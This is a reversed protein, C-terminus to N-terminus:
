SKKSQKKKSPIRKSQVSIKCPVFDSGLTGPWRGVLFGLGLFGGVLLICVTVDMMVPLFPVAVGITAPLSNKNVACARTKSNTRKYSPNLQLAVNLLRNCFHFYRILQKLIKQDM